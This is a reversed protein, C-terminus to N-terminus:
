ESRTRDVAPEVIIARGAVEKGNMEAIVREQLEQSPLKVFAIGKNYIPKRNQRHWLAVDHPVRRLPVYVWVPEYAEFVAALEGTKVKYGLNTVFVTDTSKPGEPTKSVDAGKSEPAPLASLAPESPQKRPALRRAEKEEATAPVYAKKAQLTQGMFETGHVKDIARQADDGLAFQVFGFGLRKFFPRNRHTAPKTPIEVATVSLGEFLATVEAETAKFDLNALFVRDDIVQKESM